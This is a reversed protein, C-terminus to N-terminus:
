IQSLTGSERPSTSSLYSLNRQIPPQQVRSSQNTHTVQSLDEETMNVRKLIFFLVGTLLLALVTAVIAFPVLMNNDISKRAPVIGHSIALNISNDELNFITYFNEMVSTGFSYDINSDSERPKILLLCKGSSIEELYSSTSLKVPVVNKDLTTLSPDKM